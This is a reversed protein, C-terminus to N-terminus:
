LFRRGPRPRWWQPVWNLRFIVGQHLYGKRPAGFNNSFNAKGAVPFVFSKSKIMKQIMALEQDKSPRKAKFTLIKSEPSANTSPKPPSSKTQTKNSPQTVQSTKTSTSVHAESIGTNVFWLGFILGSLCFITTTVTPIKKIM